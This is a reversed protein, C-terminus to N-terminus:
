PVAAILSPVGIAPADLVFETCRVSAASVSLLAASKVAAAGVGAAAFAPPPPVPVPSGPGSRTWSMWPLPQIEGWSPSATVFTGPITVPTRVAPLRPKQIWSGVGSLLAAVLSPIKTNV